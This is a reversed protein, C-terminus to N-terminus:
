VEIHIHICIKFKWWVYSKNSELKIAVHFFERKNGHNQIFNGVHAYASKYIDRRNSEM